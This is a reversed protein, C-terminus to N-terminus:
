DHNEGDPRGEENYYRIAREVCVFLKHETVSGHLLDTLADTLNDINDGNKYIGELCGLVIVARQGVTGRILKSM